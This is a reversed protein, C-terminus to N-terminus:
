HAPRSVALEVQATLRRLMLLHNSYLPQAFDAYAGARAADRIERIGDAVRYRCSFGLDRQVRAFSVRYSRNDTQAAEITLESSPVEQAVLEGVERLRYNEEDAGVNYIKPTAADAPHELAALIASAADRVHIFPRWQEGGHVTVRGELAARVTMVNVALDFRMRPSLGYVTSFRLLYPDFAGDRVSLLYHEALIKTQAYVSQPNLPAEEDVTGSEQWGYNSCTSAYIFRRVGARRCANALRVTGLYNTEWALDKDANCAPDGVVSALHVAADVGDLLAEYDAPVRVDGRILTIDPTVLPASTLGSELVIVAYGHALLEPVLISGIYGTGGSVLITKNV